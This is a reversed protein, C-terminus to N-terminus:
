VRMCKEREQEERIDCNGWQEFARNNNTTVNNASTRIKNKGLNTTLLKGHKSKDPFSKIKM